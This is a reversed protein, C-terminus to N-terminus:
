RLRINYDVIILFVMNENKFKLVIDIIGCVHITFKANCHLLIIQILM